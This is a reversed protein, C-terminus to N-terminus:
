IIIYLLQLDTLKANRMNYVAHNITRKAHGVITSDNKKISIWAGLYRISTAYPTLKVTISHTPSIVFTTQTPPPQSPQNKRKPKPKTVSSLIRAKKDNILINTFSYFSAGIRLIAQLNGHAGSCWLTDDMYALAPVSVEKTTVSSSRVDSAYSHM